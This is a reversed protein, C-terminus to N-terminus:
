TETKFHEISEPIKLKIIINPSDSVLRTMKKIRNQSAIPHFSLTIEIKLNIYVPTEAGRAM